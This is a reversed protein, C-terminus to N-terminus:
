DNRKMKESQQDVGSPQPQNLAKLFSEYLLKKAAACSAEHAQRHSQTLQKDPCAVTSMSSDSIKVKEDSAHPLRQCKAKSNEEELRMSDDRSTISTASCSTAEEDAPLMKRPAM